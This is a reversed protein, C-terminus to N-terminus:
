DTTLFGYQHRSFFASAMNFKSSPVAPIVDCTNTYIYYLTNVPLRYRFTDIIPSDFRLIEHGTFQLQHVPVAVTDM